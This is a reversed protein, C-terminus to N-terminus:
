GSGAKRGGIISYMNVRAGLASQIQPSHQTDWHVGGSCCILAAFHTHTHTYEGHLSDTCQSSNVCQCVGPGPAAMFWVGVPVGGCNARGEWKGVLERRKKEKWSPFFFDVKSYTM